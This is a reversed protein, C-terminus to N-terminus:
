RLERLVLMDSIGLWLSEQLPSWSFSGRMRGGVVRGVNGVRLKHNTGHNMSGSLYSVKEFGHAYLDM